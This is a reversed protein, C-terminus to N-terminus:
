FVCVEGAIPIKFFKEEQNLSELSSQNQNFNETKRFVDTSCEDGISASSTTAMNMNPAPSGAPVPPIRISRVKSLRVKVESTETVHSTRTTSPVPVVTLAAPMPPLVAPKNSGMYTLSKPLRPPQPKWNSEGMSEGTYSYISLGLSSHYNRLLSRSRDVNRVDLNGRPTIRRHDFSGGNRLEAWIDSPINTRSSPSVARDSFASEHDPVKDLCSSESEINKRSSNSDTNTQNLSLKSLQMGISTAADQNSGAVEQIALDIQAGSSRAILNAKSNNGDLAGQKTEFVEELRTRSLSEKTNTRRM